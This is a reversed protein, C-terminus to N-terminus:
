RCIRNAQESNISLQLARRGVVLDVFKCPNYKYNIITRNLKTNIYFIIQKPKDLLKISLCCNKLHLEKSILQLYM